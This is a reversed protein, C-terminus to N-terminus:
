PAAACRCFLDGQECIFNPPCVGLCTPAGVISGCGVARCLCQGSSDDLECFSNDPCIGNCQPASATNCGQPSPACQCGNGDIICRSGNPCLGFCEPAPERDGCSFSECFCRDFGPVCAENFGCTGGCQPLEADGCAVSMAMTTSTTSTTTTTTTTTTTIGCSCTLETVLGVVGNLCILADTSTIPPTANLECICGPDCEGIGVAVNLIFLCDTAVPDPGTTVPQACDGLDAHVTPVLVAWVLLACIAVGTQLRFGM